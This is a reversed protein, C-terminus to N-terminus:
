EEAVFKLQTQLGNLYLYNGDEAFEYSTIKHLYAVLKNQWINRQEEECYMETFFCNTNFQISGSKATYGCGGSNCPSKIGVNGQGEPPFNLKVKWESYPIDMLEGADMVAVLQWSGNPLAIEKPTSTEKEQSTATQNSEPAVETNKCSGLVLALMLVILGWKSKM